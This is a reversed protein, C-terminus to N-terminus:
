HHNEEEPRADGLIAWAAQNLGVVPNLDGSVREPLDINYTLSTADVHQHAVVDAKRLVAVSNDTLDYARVFTVAFSRTFAADNSMTYHDYGFGSGSGYERVHTVFTAVADQRSVAELRSIIKDTLSPVTFSNDHPDTAQLGISVLYLGNEEPGETRSPSLEVQHTGQVRHTSSSKTTTKVEVGVTGWTFDRLSQQWGAWAEVVGAADTDDAHQCLASVLLLEGALGLFAADSLRLREIALEVVPEVKNFSQVLDDDAGSRLLETCLFAAVQDFHSAAPLLLRNAEFPAGTVGSHWWTEFEISEKLTQTAPKLEPGALFIEIRNQHTKSIGVVHADTVWHIDRRTSMDPRTLRGIKDLLQEYTPM